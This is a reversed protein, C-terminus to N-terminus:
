RSNYLGAFKRSCFHM